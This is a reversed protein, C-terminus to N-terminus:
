MGTSRTADYRVLASESHLSAEHVGDTAAGDDTSEPARRTKAHSAWECRRRARTGWSKVPGEPEAAGGDDAADQPPRQVPRAARRPTEMASALEPFRVRLRPFREDEAGDAVLVLGLCHRGDGAHRDASEDGRLRGRGAAVAARAGRHTRDHAVVRRPCVEFRPTAISSASGRVVKRTWASKARRM